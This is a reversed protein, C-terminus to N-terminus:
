PKIERNHHVFVGAQEAGILRAMAAAVDAAATSRYKDFSRPTLLDTFPSVAIALSEGFRTPGSRGGRLLGPRFIDVRSFGMGCVADEAEGKTKLYFSNSAADAGVSSVMLFQTAGAARAAQALQTILDYDVARFAAKSGAQRLTTGLTSIAVDPKRVHVLQAWEEAPAVCQEIAPDLEAIERRGILTLSASPLLRALHGGVLGSAGALIIKM